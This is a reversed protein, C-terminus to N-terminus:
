QVSPITSCNYSVTDSNNPGIITMQWLNPGTSSIKPYPVPNGINQWTISADTVSAGVQPAASWSPETGGSTNTGTTTDVFEMGIPTLVVAGLTYSATNQWPLPHNLDTVSCKPASSYLGTFAYTAQGTHPMGGSGAVLQLVGATDTCAGLTAAGSCTASPTQAADSAYYCGRDDLGISNENNCVLINGAPNKGGVIHWNILQTGPNAVAVQSWDNNILKVNNLRSNCGNPGFGSGCFQGNNEFAFVYDSGASFAGGCGLDCYMHLNEITVNEIAQRFTGSYNPQNVAADVETITMQVLGTSNHVRDDHLTIDGECTGTSGIGPCPPVNWACASTHLAGCDTGSDMPINFATITYAGTGREANYINEDAYVTHYNSGIVTNEASMGNNGTCGVSTNGASVSDALYNFRRPIKNPGPTQCYISNGTIHEDTYQSVIGGCPSNTAQNCSSGRFLKAAADSMEMNLQIGANEGDGTSESAASVMYDEIDNDVIWGHSNCTLNWVMGASGGAPGAPNGLIQFSTPSTVDLVKAMNDIAGSEAGAIQVYGGPQIGLTSQLTVLVIGATNSGGPDKAWAVIGAHQNCGDGISTEQALASFSPGFIHNEKEHFRTVGALQIAHHGSNRITNREIYVDAIPNPNGVAELVSITDANNNTECPSACLTDTFLGDQIFIGSITAASDPETVELMPNSNSSLPITRALKMGRPEYRFNNSEILIGPSNAAPNNLNWTSGAAGVLTFNDAGSVTLCPGNSVTCNVIAAAPMIVTSGAPPTITTVQSQMGALTTADAVLTGNSAATALCANIAAGFDAGMTKNCQTPGCIGPTCALSVKNITHTIVGPGSITVTYQGPPANFIYNGLSDTQFPNPAHTTLTIDTYISTTPSCPYGTASRPCVTITVGAVPRGQSNFAIDHYQVGQARAAAAVAAIVLTSFILKKM